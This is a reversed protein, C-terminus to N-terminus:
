ITSLLKMVTIINYHFPISRLRASGLPASRLRISDLPASRLPASGLPASRLRISDLPASRLPASCNANM